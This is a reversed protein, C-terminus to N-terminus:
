NRRIQYLYREGQEDCFLYSGWVSGHSPATLPPPLFTQNLIMDHLYGRFIYSSGAGCAYEM